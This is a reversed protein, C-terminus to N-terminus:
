RNLVWMYGQKAQQDTEVLVLNDRIDKDNQRYPNCTGSKSYPPLRQEGRMEEFVWRALVFFKRWKSHDLRLPNTFNKIM